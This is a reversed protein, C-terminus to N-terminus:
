KPYRVLLSTPPNPSPHTVSHPFNARTSILVGPINSHEKLSSPAYLKIHVVWGSKACGLQLPILTTFIVCIWKLVHVAVDLTSTM